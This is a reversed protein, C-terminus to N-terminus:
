LPGLGTTSNTSEVGGRKADRAAVAKELWMIMPRPDKARLWSAYPSADERLPSSAEDCRVRGRVEYLPCDRCNGDDLHHQCLACTSSNVYFDPAILDVLRDVDASVGHKKRVEPMLARWKTLSHDLADEVKTKDAPTPYAVLKWTKLSM